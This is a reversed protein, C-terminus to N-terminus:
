MIACYEIYAEISDFAESKKDADEAKISLEEPTENKDKLWLVESIASVANVIISLAAILGPLGLGPMILSVALSAFNGM